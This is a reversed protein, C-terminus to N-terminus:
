NKPLYLPNKENYRKIYFFLLRSQKRKRLNNFEEFLEPERKLIFKTNEINFDLVKGIEFDILFQVVEDKYRIDASGSYYFPDNFPRHYYDYYVRIIAVFHSVSGIYPILNFKEAWYIYPKGNKSYGWVNKIDTETLIGYDDYYSISKQKELLDFFDTDGYRPSILSEFRVPSNQLFDNYSLYIGDKFRYGISHPVSETTNIQSNVYNCCAVLCLIITFYIKM